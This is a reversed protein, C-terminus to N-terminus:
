HVASWVANSLVLGNTPDITAGQWAFCLGRLSPLSPVTVSATLPTALVGAQLIFANAVWLEDVVMPLATPAGPQGLAVVGAQNATGSLTAQATGGLDGGDAHLAPLDLTTVAITAPIPTGYMAVGPAVRLTGNGNVPWGTLAPSPGTGATLVSGGDIRVDCLDIRVADHGIGFSSASNSIVSNTVHLRGGHCRITGTYFAMGGSQFWCDVVATDSNWTNLVYDAAHGGITCGVLQVQACNTVDIQTSGGLGQSVQDLVVSGACNTLQIALIDSQNGAPLSTSLGRVFVRQNAALNGILLSGSTAEGFTVGADGLVTLAKAQISFSSYHGARVVLVAGDPVAAVAAPLDTFNSGPGGTADVIYTQGWALPCLALSAALSPLSIRPM